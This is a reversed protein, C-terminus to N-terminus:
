GTHNSKIGKDPRRKDERKWLRSDNCVSCRQRQRVLSLHSARSYNRKWVITWYM